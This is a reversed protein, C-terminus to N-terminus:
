SLRLGMTQELLVWNVWWCALVLKLVDGDVCGVTDPILWVWWHDKLVKAM